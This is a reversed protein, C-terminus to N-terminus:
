NLSIFEPIQAIVKYNEGKNELITKWLQLKRSNFAYNADMESIIWSGTKLEQELQGPTWGSYGLFFKINKPQVLKSDILFKLKEFDGGWFLGPVVEVSDELLDGMDHLYQLTNTAVPGGYFVGANFEPFESFLSEVEIGVPKNLIFGLSGEDNHECVAVCGRAFHPDEMFPQAILVKGKEIKVM